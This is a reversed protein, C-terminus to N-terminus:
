KEIIIQQTAAIWEVNAGLKEAVYRIPVYTRDNLIVPAADFGPITQGITMRLVNGDITLTVLQAAANWDAKGGLAETVVRIPVMTRNDVIVPAVDNTFTTNDIRVNRNNIQLVIRKDYAAARTSVTVQVESSPMTFSYRNDGAKTVTIVNGNKDTVLM